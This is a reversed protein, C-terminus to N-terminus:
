RGKLRTKKEQQTKQDWRGKVDGTKECSDSELDDGLGDLAM